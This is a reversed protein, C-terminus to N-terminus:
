PTITVRSEATNARYEPRYMDEVVGAPVLFEGPTVARMVYAVSADKGTLSKYGRKLSWAALYRDDRFEEFTPSSRELEQVQQREGSLRPVELEFGAPLPVELSLETDTEYTIEINHKVLIEAGLQIQDLEIDNGTALDVYETTLEVGNNSEADSLSKNVGRATLNLYMPETSQNKFSSWREQQLMYAAADGLPMNRFDIRIPLDDPLPKAEGLKDALRLLWAKEQTSLWRREQAQTFLKQVGDYAQELQANTPKDLSLVGFAIMAADRIYSGYDYRYWQDPLDKNISNYLDTVIKDQGMMESALMLHVRTQVRHRNDTLVQQSLYRLDGPDLTGLKAQLYYAYANAAPYDRNYNLVFRTAKSLMREPVIYGRQKAELLFEVAYMSLWAQRSSGANWLSFSGDNNQLSALHVIAQNIHKDRNAADLGDGKRDLMLVPWAKSVTQELCGFPYDSLSKVLWQTPVNPSSTAEITLSRSAETLDGVLSLLTEREGAEILVQQTKTETFRNQQVSMDWNYTQSKYGKPAVTLTVQNMGASIANLKTTIARREGPALTVVTDKEEISIGATGQWKIAVDVKPLELNHLDIGISAEDDMALFRPLNPNVVIPHRVLMTDTASTMAQEGFGVAMLRVKGNFQPFSMAISAHGDQDVNVLDSVVVVPKVFNEIPPATPAGTDSDGGFRIKLVEGAQHQILHGYLDRLEVGLRRKKNIWQHLNPSAFQTLQLIGEDVAAVMVQSGEPLNTHLKITVPDEPVAKEPAMIEMNAHQEPRKINVYTVGVARAPGVQEKGPRYVSALVYFQQGWEEKVLLEVQGENSVLDFTQEELITDNAVVLHLKGAYPAEVKIGLTEGVAVQQRAPALRVNDPMASQSGNASWWGNRFPLQTIQGSQSHTVELRYRGWDMVGLDINAFGQANTKVEGSAMVGADFKSIRYRWRGNSRYWHYDWEERVVQYYLDVDSQAAQSDLISALQFIIAKDKDYVPYDQETKIGVWKTEQLAPITKARIAARGSPEIVQVRLDMALAQNSWESRLLGNPVEIIAQGQNDTVVKELRSFDAAFEDSSGFVYDQYDTFLRRKQRVTVSSEVELGAAPSGYLFDSKVDILLPDNFYLDNSSGINVDITEPVYDAVEFAYRGIPEDEISLYLKAQWQGTRGSTPIAFRQQFGGVKLKSIKKTIAIDGDPRVLQLTLPMDSVAQLSKDRVIGTLVIEEGLRYVGRESFMYTNLMTLPKAGGVPQESLDLGQDTLPLVAFEGEVNIYRVQVPQHGYQGNMLEDSFQVKGHKNTIAKALIDQNKAVLELEIGSKPLASEYSRAYVHLGDEGQYSVLGTDTYILTQSPRDTWRSEGSDLMLMYAGPRQGLMVDSLDINVTRTINKNGSLDIEIEGIVQVEKKLYNISYGSMADFFRDNRLRELVQEPSLRFVLLKVKEKNVTTIPILPQQYAPLVYTASQFSASPEKDDVKFKYEYDATLQKNGSFPFGERLTVFYHRGHKLNGLCLQQGKIQLAFSHKTRISADAKKASEVQVFDDIHQVGLRPPNNLNMCAMASNPKDTMVLSDVQFDNSQAANSLSSFGFLNAGTLFVIVPIRLFKLLMYIGAWM